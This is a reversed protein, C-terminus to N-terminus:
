YLLDALALVPSVLCSAGPFLLENAPARLEFVDNPRAPDHPLVVWVAHIQDQLPRGALAHVRERAAAPSALLTFSIRTNLPSTVPRGATVDSFQDNARSSPRPNAM